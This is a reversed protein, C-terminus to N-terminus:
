RNVTAGFVRVSGPVNVVRGQFIEDVADTARKSRLHVADWAHSMSNGYGAVEDIGNFHATEIELVPVDIRGGVHERKGDPERSRAPAPNETVDDDTHVDDLRFAV